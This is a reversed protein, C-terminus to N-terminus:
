ELVVKTVGIALTAILVVGTGRVGRMSMAHGVFLFDVCMVLWLCSEMKRIDLRMTVFEVRKQHLNVAIHSINSSSVPTLLILVPSSALWPTQPWPLASNCNCLLHFPYFSSLTKYSITLQSHFMLTM